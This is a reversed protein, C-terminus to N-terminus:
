MLVPFTESYSQLSLDYYVKAVDEIAKAKSLNRVTAYTHFGNRELAISTVYGIESSSGTVIAVKGTQDSILSM